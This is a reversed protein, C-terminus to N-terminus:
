QHASRSGLGQWKRSFDAELVGQEVGAHLETFEVSSNGGSATARGPTAEGAATMQSQLLPANHRATRKPRPHVEALCVSSWPSCLAVVAAVAKLKMTPRRLFADRKGDASIKGSV